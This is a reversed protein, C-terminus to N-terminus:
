WVGAGELAEKVQRLMRLTLYNRANYGCGLAEETLVGSGGPFSSPHVGDAFLGRSRLGDFAYRLDVLPLRRACALRAAAASVANTQVMQRASSLGGEDDCDRLGPQPGRRPITSLIPVVGRSELLTVIAEMDATYRDVLEDIPEVRMVADNSGYMVIAVAPGVADLMADLPTVGGPGPALAWRSPAGVRAARRARFSDRTFGPLREVAVGRYHDVITAPGIGAVPTALRERVADSFIVPGPSSSSFPGMFLQGETISDGVLGFSRPSLGRERGKSAIAVIRERTEGDIPLVAADLRALLAADEPPAACPRPDTGGVLRPLSACDVQAEGRADLPGEVDVSPAECAAPSSPAAPVSSPEIAVSSAAPQGAPAVPAAAPHFSAPSSGLPPEGPGSACSVLALGLLARRAGTM